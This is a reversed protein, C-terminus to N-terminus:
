FSRLSVPVNSKATRYFLGLPSTAQKDGALSIWLLEEVPVGHQRSGDNLQFLFPSSFRNHMRMKCNAGICIVFKMNYNADYKVFDNSKM